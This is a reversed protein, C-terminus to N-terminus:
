KVKEEGVIAREVWMVAQQFRQYQWWVWLAWILALALMLIGFILYSSGPLLVFTAVLISQIIFLAIAAGVPRPPHICLVSANGEFKVEASISTTAGEQDTFEIVVSHLGNKDGPHLKVDLERNRQAQARLQRVVSDLDAEAMQWCEAKV